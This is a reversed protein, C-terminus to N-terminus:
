KVNIIKLKNDEVGIVVNFKEFLKKDNALTSCLSYVGFSGLSILMKSTCVKKGTKDTFDYHAIKLASVELTEM